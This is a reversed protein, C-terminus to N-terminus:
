NSTMSSIGRTVITGWRYHEANERSVRPHTQNEM